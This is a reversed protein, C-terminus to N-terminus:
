FVQSPGIQTNEKQEHLGRRLLAAPRLGDQALEGLKAQHQGALQRRLGAGAFVGGLLCRQDVGEVLGRAGHAQRQGQVGLQVAVGCALRAVGLGAGAL